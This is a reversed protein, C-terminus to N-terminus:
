VMAAQAGGDNGLIHPADVCALNELLDGLAALLNAELIELARCGLVREHPGVVLNTGTVQWRSRMVQIDCNKRRHGSVRRTREM